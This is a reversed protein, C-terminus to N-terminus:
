QPEIYEKKFFAAYIVLVLLIMAVTISQGSYFSVLDYFNLTVKLNM